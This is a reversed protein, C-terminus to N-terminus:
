FFGFLKKKFGAYLEEYTTYSINCHLTENWKDKLIKAFDEAGAIGSKLLYPFVYYIMCFNIDMMVTPAIKGRKEYKDFVRRSFDVAVSEYAGKADETESASRLIGDIAPGFESKFRETNAEYTTQKLKKLYLDRIEFLETLKIIYQEMGRWDRSSRM